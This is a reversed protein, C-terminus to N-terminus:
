LPVHISVDFVCALGGTFELSANRADLGTKIRIFGLFRKGPEGEEFVRALGTMIDSRFKRADLGAM